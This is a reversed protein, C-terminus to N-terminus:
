NIFYIGFKFNVWNCFLHYTWFVPCPRLRETLRFRFVRQLFRIEWLPAWPSQFVVGFNDWNSFESWTAWLATSSILIIFCATCILSGFFSYSKGFSTSRVQLFADFTHDHQDEGQPYICWDAVTSFLMTFAVPTSSSARWM